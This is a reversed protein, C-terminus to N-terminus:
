NRGFTWKGQRGFAPSIARCAFEKEAAQAGIYGIQVDPATSSRSSLARSRFRNAEHFRDVLDKSVVTFKM